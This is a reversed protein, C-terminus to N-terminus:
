SVVGPPDWTELFEIMARVAAGRHSRASKEERSIEAFTRDMGAPRFIPDYGFGGDGSPATTITGAAEGTTEHVVGGPLALVLHCVFRAGRRSEEVDRLMELLGQNRERQTIQPDIFRASYVGPAGDLAEVELGSDDALAPMGVHGAYFLAKGRANEAFTTGDEPFEPTGDPLGRVTWGSGALLDRLERVKGANHTAM